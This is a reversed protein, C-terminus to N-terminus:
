PARAAQFDARAADLLEPRTYLDIATMALATAATLMAQHAEPKAAAATFDLHHKGAGTPIAFMPHISPLIYSVNGM